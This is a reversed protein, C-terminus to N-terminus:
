LRAPLRHQPAWGTPGVQPPAAGFAHFCAWLVAIDFGWWGIAGLLYPNRSRVLSLATRVGTACCYPALEFTEDAGGSIIIANYGQRVAERLRTAAGGEHVVGAIAYGMKEPRENKDALFYHASLSSLGLAVIGSFLVWGATTNTRDDM